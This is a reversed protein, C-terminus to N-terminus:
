KKKPKIIFVYVAAGAGVLAAVSLGAILVLIGTNKKEKPAAEAEVETAGTTEAAVPETVPVREPTTNEQDVVDEAPPTPESPQANGTDNNANDDPKPTNQTDDPKPEPQPEPEPKPEPEPEPKPEPKPEPEPEPEPEVFGPTVMFFHQTSSSSSYDPVQNAFTKITKPTTVAGTTNDISTHGSSVIVTYGEDFDFNFKVGIRKVELSENYLEISGGSSSSTGSTVAFIVKSDSINLANDLRVM